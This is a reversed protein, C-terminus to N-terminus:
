SEDTMSPSEWGANYLNKGHANDRVSLCARCGDRSIFGLNRM